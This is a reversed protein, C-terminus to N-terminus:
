SSKSEKSAFPNFLGERAIRSCTGYSTRLKTGQQTYCQCRRQAQVLVCLPVPFDAVDMGDYIPASWPIGDIRPTHMVLWDEVTRPRASAKPQDKPPPPMGIVGMLGADTAQIGKEAIAAAEEAPEALARYGAYILGLCLLPIIWVLHVIAPLRAKHTHVSASKYFQWVDPRLTQAGHVAVKRWRTSKTDEVAEQWELTRVVGAGFKRELHRHKGVLRRVHPDLMRPDQTAIVFDFGRHRHESLAAVPPIPPGGRRTPWPKQVEDAVIISGDPLGQWENLDELVTVGPVSLGDIGFAYIARGPAQERYDLLRSVLHSSKGAGPLGTILEIM